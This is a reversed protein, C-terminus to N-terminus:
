SVYPTASLLSHRLFTGSSPRWGPRSLLPTEEESAPGQSVEEADLASLVTLPSRTWKVLEAVTDWDLVSWCHSMLSVWGGAPLRCNFTVNVLFSSLSKSYFLALYDSNIYVICLVTQFARCFFTTGHYYFQQWRWHQMHLQNSVDCSVHQTETLSLFVFITKYFTHFLLYYHYFFTRKGM